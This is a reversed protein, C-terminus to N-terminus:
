ACTRQGGNAPVLQGGRVQSSWFCFKVPTNQDKVFTLPQTMGGLDNDKISWLGDLVSQSTPPESLHQTALEFLKASVWGTMGAGDPVIGPAYQKLTSSYQAVAPNSTLSYPAVVSGVFIGDLATDTLLVSNVVPGGTALQPHYNVSSCSRAFRSIGNPDVALVLVQAGASQAAQCTSTFDPQALSVQARYAMSVGFQAATAGGTTYMTSCIPAEICSISGMRTMGKAKGLTAAGAIASSLSLQGSSSQPFYMPSQYFWPSGTESGMVPVRKQTLYSVGAQGAIPADMQVFAMVHDQEVLQQTLSQNRSPDGGDDVIIYKVRHCNVGGKANISALWAQV